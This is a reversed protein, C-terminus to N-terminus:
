TQQSLVEALVINRSEDIGFLMSVSGSTVICLQDDFTYRPEFNWSIGAENLIRLVDSLSDGSAITTQSDSVFVPYYKLQLEIGHVRGNRLAIEYPALHYYHIKDISCSYQNSDGNWATGVNLNLPIEGEKLFPFIDFAINEAGM